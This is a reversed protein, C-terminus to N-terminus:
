ASAVVRLTLPRVSLGNVKMATTALIVRSRNELIHEGFYIGGTLQARGRFGGAGEAESLHWADFIKVPRTNAYLKLRKHLALM